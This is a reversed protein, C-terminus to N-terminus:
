ATHAPRCKARCLTHTCGMQSCRDSQHYSQLLKRVCQTVPQLKCQPHPTNTFVTAHATYPRSAQRTGVTVGVAVCMRTWEKVLLATQLICITWMGTSAGSKNDAATDATCACLAGCGHGVEATGGGLEDVAVRRCVALQPTKSTNHRVSTHLSSSTQSAQTTETSVQPTTYIVPWRVQTRM